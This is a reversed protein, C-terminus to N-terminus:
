NSKRDTNASRQRTSISLKELLSKYRTTCTRLLNSHLVSTRHEHLVRVCVCICVGSLMGFEDLFCHSRAAHTFLFICKSIQMCCSCSLFGFMRVCVCVGGVFVTRSENLVCCMAGFELLLFSGFLGSLM